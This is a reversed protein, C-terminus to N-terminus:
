GFPFADKAKVARLMPPRKKSLVLTHGAKVIIPQGVLRGNTKRRDVWISGESVSYTLTKKAQQMWFTTGRRGTVTRECKTSPIRKGWKGWEYCGWYDYERDGFVATVKAWVVGLLLTGKYSPSTDNTADCKPTEGFSTGKALRIVSGDAFVFEVNVDATVKEGAAFARGVMSTNSTTQGPPYTNVQTVKQGCEIRQTVTMTGINEMMGQGTDFKGNLAQSGGAAPVTFTHPELLLFPEATAGGVFPAPHGMCTVVSPVIPSVTVNWSVEVNDGHKVLDVKMSGTPAITTLQCGAPLGSSVIPGFQLEGEGHWATPDNGATTATAVIDATVTETSSFPGVVMTSDVKLAIRYTVTRKPPTFGAHTPPALGVLLALAALVATPFHSYGRWIRM